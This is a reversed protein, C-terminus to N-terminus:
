SDTLLTHQGRWSKVWILHYCLAHHAGKPFVQRIKCFIIPHTGAEWSLLHLLCILDALNSSVHAGKGSSGDLILVRGKIQM